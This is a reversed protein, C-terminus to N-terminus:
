KIWGNARAVEKLGDSYQFGGDPSIYACESVGTDPNYSLALGLPHLIEHNIRFVLGRKSLENWNVCPLESVDSASQPEDILRETTIKMLIGDMEIQATDAGLEGLLHATAVLLIQLAETAEGDALDITEDLVRKIIKTPVSGEITETM